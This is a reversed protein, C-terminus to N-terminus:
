PQIDKEVDASYKDMWEQSVGFVQAHGCKECEANVPWPFYEINVHGCKKCTWDSMDRKVTKQVV